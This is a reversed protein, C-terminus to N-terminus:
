NIKNRKKGRVLGQSLGLLRRLDTVDMEKILREIEKLYMEKEM